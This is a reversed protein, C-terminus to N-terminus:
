DKSNTRAPATSYKAALDRAKKKAPSIREGGIGPMGPSGGIGRPAFLEPADQKLHGLMTDVFDPTAAEPAIDIGKTGQHAMLAQVMVRNAGELKGVVADVAAAARQDYQMKALKGELEATKGKEAELLKEFEGQEALRQDEAAKQEAEFASVKATAESAKKREENLLGLVRDLEAKPVTSSEANPTNGEGTPTTPTTPGPTQGPTKSANPMTM